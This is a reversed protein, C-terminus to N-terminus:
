RSRRLPGRRHSVWIEAEALYYESAAQDFPTATGAEAMTRVRDALLRMRDRHARPSPELLSPRQDGVSVTWRVSWMYVAEVSGTGAAHASEAIESARQAADTRLNNASREEAYGVGSLALGWLMIPFAVIKSM